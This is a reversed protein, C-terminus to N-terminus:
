TAAASSRRCRRSCSAGGTSVGIGTPGYAKHGTWAYFDADIARLDVPVQPVAQSGDVLVEAGAEHARAVIAQVPNIMGLVDSVHVVGVLKPAM